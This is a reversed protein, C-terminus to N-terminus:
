PNRWEGTDGMVGGLFNSGMVIGTIMRGKRSASRREDGSEGM